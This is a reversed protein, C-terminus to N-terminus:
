GVKYGAGWVVQLYQPEKPNKEIKERIHRIHVAVTNDVGVARMHWITEYIQNISIVKGRETVLLKLIKYEIPTLKVETGDVTVKKTDDNICLEGVQLVAATERNAVSLQIYRRLQAKVRAVLELISCPRVIYDDAGATLGSVKHTEDAFEALIIIPLDWRSRVQNLFVVSENVDEEMDSILLQIEEQKLLPFVEEKSHVKWVQYGEKTLYFGIFDALERDENFILIKNM